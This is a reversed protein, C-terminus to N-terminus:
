AEIRFILTMVKTSETAQGDVTAPRFRWRTLAHRETTRWFADSTASLREIAKVRGDAGITLRVRVTGDRQRAHESAPYPPQLETRPDFQAEVRVPIRPLDPALSAVVTRQGVNGSPPPLETPEETVVPGASHTAVVPLPADMVSRHQPEDRPPPPPTDDPPTPIPINFVDTITRDPHDVTTKVLVLGAFVAGHLAIVTALGGPRISKQEYFGTATM